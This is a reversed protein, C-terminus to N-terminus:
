QSYATNLLNFNEPTITLNSEKGRNKDYRGDINLKTECMFSGIEVIQNEDESTYPYTKL